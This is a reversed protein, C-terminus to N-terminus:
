FGQKNDEIYFKSELYNRLLKASPFYVKKPLQDIAFWRWETIEDPEMVKPEGEFDDCFLGVTIFHARENKQQNICIIKIDKLKIGTEELAERRAGDEFTEGYDLSGGVMTWTGEGHFISDAKVPDDHRKGLLIKGEKMILMGIGVGIKKNNTSQEM